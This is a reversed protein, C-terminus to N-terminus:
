ETKQPATKLAPLKGEGVVKGNVKLEWEGRIWRPPSLGAQEEGRARRDESRVRHGQGAARSAQIRLAGPHPTRDPWVLGDCVFNLDNPKDGFDGGYAWYERGDATKQKIGHDIWEWIFGGQLGPINKLPTGTIPSRATATAWPTRINACSSRAAAPRSAIQGHGVAIISLRHVSVDPLRHRHRAYGMDYLRECRSAERM